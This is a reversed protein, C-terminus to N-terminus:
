AQGRKVILAWADADTGPRAGISDAKAIWLSGGLTCLSGEGYTADTRWIGAYKVGSPRQEIEQLRSRLEILELELPRILKLIAPALSRVLLEQESRKM